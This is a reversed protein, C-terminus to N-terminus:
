NKNNNNQNKREQQRKKATEILPTLQKKEALVQLLNFLAPIYNHRRRINEKKWKERKKTESDIDFTIEKIQNAIEKSLLEDNKLEELKQEM